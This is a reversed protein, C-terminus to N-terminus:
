RGEELVVDVIDRVPLGCARLHASCRTDAQLAGADVRAAMRAADLPHAKALWPAGGCCRGAGGMCSPTAGHAAPVLEHLWVTDVGALQLVRAVGGHAVIARRGTLREAVLALHAAFWPAGHGEAGLDGDVSWTAVPRGLHAAASPSWDRHDTLVAVDAADGVIGALGPAAVDQLLEARARAILLPLPRHLHCADQCRGCDSCLTAAARAEADTAQGHSWAHLVDAILTPVAAERSSGAAVPCAHRCLRPCLVCTDLSESM